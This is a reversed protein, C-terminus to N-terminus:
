CGSQTACIKRLVIFKEDVDTESLGGFSITTAGDLDLQSDSGGTM